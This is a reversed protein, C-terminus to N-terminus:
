SVESKEYIRCTFCKDYYSVVSWSWLEDSFFVLLISLKLTWIINLLKDNKNLCEQFCIQVRGSDFFTNLYFSTWLHCSYKPQKWVVAFHTNQITILFACISDRNSIRYKPGHTRWFVDLITIQSARKLHTKSNRMEFWSERHKKAYVRDFYRIKFRSELHADRIVIWIVIWFVCKTM